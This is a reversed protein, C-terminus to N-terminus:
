LPRQTFSVTPEGAGLERKADGPPMQVPESASRKKSVYSLKVLWSYQM